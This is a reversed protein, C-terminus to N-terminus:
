YLVACCLVACRLAACRSEACCLSLPMCQLAKVASIIHCEFLHQVSCSPWLALALALPGGQLVHRTLDAMVLPVALGVLYLPGYKQWHTGRCTVM